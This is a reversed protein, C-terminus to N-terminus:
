LLYDKPADAGGGGGRARVFIYTIYGLIYLYHLRFYIVM